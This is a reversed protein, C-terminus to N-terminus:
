AAPTRVKMKLVAWDNVKVPGAAGLSYARFSSWKWFEPSTVLGRNVPNRHMYRLKEIRKWETWVNFWDPRHNIWLWITVIEFICFDGSSDEGGVKVRALAGAGCPSHSM